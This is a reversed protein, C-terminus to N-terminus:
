FGASVRRRTVGYVGSSDAGTTTWVVCYSAGNSLAHWPSGLDCGSPETGPLAPNDKLQKLAFEIGSEAAYYAKASQSSLSSVKLENVFIASLSFAILFMIIVILFALLIAVAGKQRNNKKDLLNNM